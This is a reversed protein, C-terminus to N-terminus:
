KKLYLNYLVFEYLVIQVICITYYMNMCNKYFITYDLNM